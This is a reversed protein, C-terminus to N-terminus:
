SPTVEAARRWTLALAGALPLLFWERANLTWLTAGTIACWLLPIVLVSMRHIRLCLLLGLTALVTPDPMLAFWESQALPQGSALALLPYFLAALLMLQGARGAIDTGARLDRGTRGQWLLLLGQLAFACAFYDAGWNILAYRVWHFAWAVFLWALGAVVLASRMRAPSPRTVAWLLWAAALATVAHLPMWVSNHLELLRYWTRASFMLFDSLSYTSWEPM